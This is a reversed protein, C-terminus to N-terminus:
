AARDVVEDGGAAGYICSDKYSSLVTKLFLLKIIGM